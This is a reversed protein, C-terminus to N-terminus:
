ILIVKNKPIGFYTSYHHCPPSLLSSRKDERWHASAFLESNQHYGPLLAALLVTNGTENKYDGAGSSKTSAFDTVPHPLQLPWPCGFYPHSGASVLKLRGLALPTLCLPQQAMEHWKNSTAFGTQRLQRLMLIKLITSRCLLFKTKRGAAWNSKQPQNIWSKTLTAWSM